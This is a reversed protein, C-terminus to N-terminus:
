AEHGRRSCKTVSEWRRRAQLGSTFSCLHLAAMSPHIILSRSFIGQLYTLNAKLYATPM